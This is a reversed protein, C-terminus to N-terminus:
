INGFVLSCYTIIILYIYITRDNKYVSELKKIKM